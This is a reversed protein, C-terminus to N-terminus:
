QRRAAGFKYQLLYNLRERTYSSKTEGVHSDGAVVYNELAYPYIQSPGHVIGDSKTGPATFRDWWRDASDMARHANGCTATLWFQGFFISGYNCIRLGQYTYETWRVLNRGGWKDEPNAAFDGVLRMPMWRKKPYHQIGYRAFGESQSNLYSLSSSSPQLDQTAPAYADM